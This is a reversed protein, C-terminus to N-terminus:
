DDANEQAAQKGLETLRYERFRGWEKAVALYGKESLCQRTVFRVSKVNGDKHLWPRRSIDLLECGEAMLRVIRRQTPSLNLTEGM